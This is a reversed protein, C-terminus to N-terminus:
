KGHLVFDPILWKFIILFLAYAALGIVIEFIRRKAKKVQEENGGATLYQIGAVTIGIVALTGLCVSMIDVILDLICYIGEEGDEDAKEGCKDLISTEVGFSNASSASQIAFAPLNLSSFGLVVMLCVSFIKKLM